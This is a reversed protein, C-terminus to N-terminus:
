IWLVENAITDGVAACGEQLNEVVLRKLRKVATDVEQKLSVVARGQWRRSTDKLRAVGKQLLQGQEDQGTKNSVVVGKLFAKHADVSRHDGM